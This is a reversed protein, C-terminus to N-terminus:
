NRYKLFKLANQIKELSCVSRIALAYDQLTSIRKRKKHVIHSWLNEINESSFYQYLSLAM